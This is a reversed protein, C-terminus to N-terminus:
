VCRSTYLLCPVGPTKSPAHILSGEKRGAPARRVEHRALPRPGRAEGQRKYVDLHTYSVAEAGHPNRATWNEPMTKRNFDEIAAHAAELAARRDATLGKWAQALERGAVKFEGPKLKVGDFKLAYHAVAADGRARIDSLIAAVSDSIDQSVAAGRCFAALDSGFQKSAFSITRM